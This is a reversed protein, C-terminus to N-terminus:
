EKEMWGYSKFRDEMEKFIRKDRRKSILDSIWEAVGLLIFFGIIIAIALNGSEVLEKM